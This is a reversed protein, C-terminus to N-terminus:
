RSDGKRAELILFSDHWRREKRLETFGAEMVRAGLDRVPHTTTQTILYTAAALPVRLTRRLLGLLGRPSVEDALVLLGGPKLLVWAARLAHRQEDPSLESMVLCSVAADLSGAEIHDSIEAVGLEHWAISGQEPVPKARAVELMGADIDIATVQAGRAACALAVAGTGCGIDLVRRGPGAARRALERYVEEMRGRSLWRIGREYRDPASELVKMWVFSSMM